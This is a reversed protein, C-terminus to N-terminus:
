LLIYTDHQTHRKTNTDYRYIHYTYKVLYYIRYTRSSRTIIVGLM